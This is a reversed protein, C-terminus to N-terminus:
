LLVTAGYGNAVRVPFLRGTYEVIRKIKAACVDPRRAVLPGIALVPGAVRVDAVANNHPVVNNMCPHSPMSPHTNSRLHPSVVSLVSPPENKDPLRALYLNNVNIASINIFLAELHSTTKTKTFAFSSVTLASARLQRSIWTWFRFCIYGLGTGSELIDKPFWM